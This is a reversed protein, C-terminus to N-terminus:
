FARRLRSVLHVIDTETMTIIQVNASTHRPLVEEEEEVEENDNEHLINEDENTPCQSSSTIPLWVWNPNQPWFIWLKKPCWSGILFSFQEETAFIRILADSPTM